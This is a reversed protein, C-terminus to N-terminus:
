NMNLIYEVEPDVNNLYDIISHKVAIDPYLSDTDDPFHKFYKSSYTVRLGSNPLNFTKVEGYHNPKGGTPEGVLIAKTKKKLEITNLIASSFTERGILVYVEFKEKKQLRAIGDILPGAISSNGGGNNRLDFIVRKIQNSELDAIVEKTYTDIPKKKNESCRNYQIYMTEESSIYEHWYIEEIRRKYFPAETQILKDDLRTIQVNVNKHYYSQLEITNENGNDDRFTFSAKTLDDIFGFNMLFDATVAIFPFDSILQADNEHELMSSMEQLIEEIAVGGISVLEQGLFGEHEKSIQIAFWGEDFRHIVLPFRNLPIDYRITTHGDGILSVLKKMGIFVGISDLKDISSLLELKQIQFDEKSINHYLNKHNGELKSVLYEIDEQWLKTGEEGSLEIHKDWKKWAEQSSLTLNQEKRMSVFFGVLLVIIILSPILIKYRKRM